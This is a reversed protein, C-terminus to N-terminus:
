SIKVKAMERMWTTARNISDELTMDPMKEIASLIRNEAAFLSDFVATMKPAAADIGAAVRPLGKTIVSTKWQDLTVANLRNAWKGSQVSATLRAIMKDGKAAAKSTPSVSVSQVGVRMDDLAGKLRRAHKEQAQSPTLKVPM